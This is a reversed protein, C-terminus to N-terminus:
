AYLGIGLFTLWLVAYAQLFNNMSHLSVTRERRM